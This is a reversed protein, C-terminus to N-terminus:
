REVLVVDVLDAELLANPEDWRLMICGADVLDGNAAPSLRALAPVERIATAADRAKVDVSGCDSPGLGGGTGATALPKRPAEDGLNLLIMIEEGPEDAVPEARGAHRSV